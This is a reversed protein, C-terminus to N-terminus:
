IATGYFLVNSGESATEKLTVSRQFGDEYDQDGCFMGRECNIGQNLAPVAVVVDCVRSLM